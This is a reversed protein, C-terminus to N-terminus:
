TPRSPTAAGNTVPVADADAIAMLTAPTTTPAWASELQVSLRARSAPASM